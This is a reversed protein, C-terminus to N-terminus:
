SSILNVIVLPKVNLARKVARRAGMAVFQERTLSDSNQPDWSEFADACNQAVSKEIDKQKESSCFFGKLTVIPTEKLKSGRVLTLCEVVVVGGRAATRREKIPSADLPGSNENFYWRRGTTVEKTTKTAHEGNSDLQWVDGNELIFANEVKIKAKKATECHMVLHRYEGHVPIFYRPKVLKLLELQEERYAHGSVHVHNQDEYHVTAGLRFLQNVLHSIARENGPINRSSLIVADGKTLKLNSVENNSLRLLSSRAEGQSGTSLVLVESRPYKRIEDMSRISSLKVPLFGEEIAINVYRHMSRGSLFVKRKHKVAIDILQHIRHVNSAFLAVVVVGSTAKVLLDLEKNIDSESESHGCRESNTSDSLLLLPKLKGIERLRKKDSAPGDYPKEDFKFDGSHVIIGRPTKISLAFSQLTSHTVHIFEVDFCGLRHEDGAEVAFTLLRDLVHHEEAKEALLRAAFRSCYIIPIKIEKLLYPIAGIHDEHGHTIVIGRIKTQNEKLYSFDPIVIDLGMWSLDPFLVGCDIILIDDGCEVVTLNLGIEGLGGLALVRLPKQSIM